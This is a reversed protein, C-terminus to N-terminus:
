NTKTLDFISQYKADKRGEVITKVANKGVGKVAGM